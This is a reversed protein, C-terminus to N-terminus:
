VRHCFRLILLDHPFDVRSAASFTTEVSGAPWLFSLWYILFSACRKFFVSKQGTKRSRVLNGYFITLFLQSLENLHMFVQEKTFYKKKNTIPKKFYTKPDLYSRFVHLCFRIRRIRIRLIYYRSSSLYNQEPCIRILLVLLFIRVNSVVGYGM